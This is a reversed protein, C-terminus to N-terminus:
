APKEQALRRDICDRLRQRIRTLATRVAGHSTEMATAVETLPLSKGYALDVMRRARGDLEERCRQLAVTREDLEPSLAVLEAELTQLLDDDLLHRDRAHDRRRRLLALRAFGLVWALFDRERDFVERKRWCAMAVEQALDDIAGRDMLGAALYCRLRPEIRSWRTAFHASNM